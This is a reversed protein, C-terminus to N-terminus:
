IVLFLTKLCYRWIQSAQNTLFDEFSTFPTFFPSPLPRFIFHILLTTNCSGVFWFM